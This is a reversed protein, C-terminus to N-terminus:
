DNQFRQSQASVIFGVITSCAEPRSDETDIEHDSNDGSNWHFKLEARVPRYEGAEGSSHDALGEGHFPHEGEKELGREKTQEEVALLSETGPGVPPRGHSDEQSRPERAEEDYGSIGPHLM